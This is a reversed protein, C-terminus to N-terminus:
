GFLAARPAPRDSEQAAKGEIVLRREFKGGVSGGPEITLNRYKLIASLSGGSRVFINDCIINAQASGFVTLNRCFIVGQVRGTKEICVNEAFVLGNVQGHIFANRTILKGEIGSCEDIITFSNKAGKIKSPPFNEWDYEAVEDEGEPVFVLSCDYSV